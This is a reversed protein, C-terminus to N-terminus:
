KFGRQRRAEFILIGAAVSVNMSDLNGQMPIIIHQHNDRRWDDTLGNAETGVVIASAKTYDKSDYPTAEQLIASYVQINKQKLFTIIETSTGIAINQTFLAGVSSRIINPNYLDTLPDALIFADVGAADATRLLAGINGPKEPAQAILILSNEPLQLQELNHTKTHALGIFGETSGRYAIKEYIALSLEIRSTTEPLQQFLSETIATSAIELCYYVKELKYGSQLALQIERLGEIIFLGKKKRERSKERLLVLEKISSNQLSSIKKDM